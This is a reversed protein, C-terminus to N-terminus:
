PLIRRIPNGAINKRTWVKEQFYRCGLSRLRDKVLGTHDYFDRLRDAGKTDDHDETTNDIQIVLTGDSKLIRWAETLWARAIVCCEEWSAFDVWDDGYKVKQAFYPPSTVIRDVLAQRNQWGCRDSASKNPSGRGIRSKSSASLKSENSNAKVM